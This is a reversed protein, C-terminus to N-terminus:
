ARDQGLNELLKLVRRYTDSTLDSSKMMELRAQELVARRDEATGYEMSRIISDLCIVSTQLSVTAAVLSGVAEALDVVADRTSISTAANGDM